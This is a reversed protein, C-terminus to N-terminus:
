WMRFILDLMWADFDPRGSAKSMNIWMKNYSGQMSFQRNVDIRIGLGATYSWDNETKTPTWDSCVYGYFPDWWCSTSGRGTPINTDVYTWGIGGTVFPTIKGDLLYFVGNLSLTSTDMYNNYRRTTGNTNVTTAEYSRYGWNWLGNLQFHDNFNYGAGFGFGWDSDVNVSSGGQGGITASDTYILPLHFEWSGARGGPRTTTFDQAEAVAALGPALFMAVVLCAAGIKVLYRM